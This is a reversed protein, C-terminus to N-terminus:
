GTDKLVSLTPQTMHGTINDSLTVNFGIYIAISRQFHLKLFSMSHISM